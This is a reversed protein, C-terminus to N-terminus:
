KKNQMEWLKQIKMIMLSDNSREAAKLSEEDLNTYKLLLDVQSEWVIGKEIAENIARTGNKFYENAQEDTIRAKMAEWSFPYPHGLKDPDAGAKLFAEIIRNADKIFYTKYDKDIGVAKGDIFVPNREHLDKKNYMYIRDWIYPRKNVDAGFEILLQLIMVDPTPDPIEEGILIRIYTNYFSEALVSLPNADVWGCEGHCYNPDFGKNLFEQVEDSELGYVANYFLWQDHLGKNLGPFEVQRISELLKKMKKNYRNEDHMCSFLLLTIITVLLGIISLIFMQRINKM